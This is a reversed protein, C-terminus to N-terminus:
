AKRARAEYAGQLLALFDRAFRPGDCLPSAAVRERMQSRLAALDGLRGAWAVAREIYTQVDSAVFQGYSANTLHSTAHRSAFGQGPFTVVPVGMWLAECTTLGGSYPQTDLALDVRGYSALVQLNESWGEIIIREGSVGRQAMDQRFRQQVDPHHLGGYKIFLRSLPARRLIEGWADLMWPSYKAPNNFCGFTVYGTALAPLPGVAPSQPPPGYCIYDHPMRLVKESHWAEEGERVHFRDAILGDMAAMGTTGVYGLWTVQLPAPRRAFALLRRGVHGGLDVLVDIEDARVQQALEEDTLGVTVRWLDAAAQFRPTYDDKWLRDSYCAVMCQSKDLCEIARLGLFGTPGSSFDIGSFGLRLPAHADRQTVPPAPPLLPRAYAADWARHAALVEQPSLSNSYHLSVLLKSHTIPNPALEVSRSMAAIAEETKAQAQLAGGLVTWADADKSNEAVLQRCIAEAEGFFLQQLLVLALNFRSDRDHPALRVAERYAAEADPLRDRMREANGLVLWAPVLEPSRSLVSHILQVGTEVDGRQVKVQALPVLAIPNGPNLQLSRVFAEHAADLNGLFHEAAGLGTWLEAEQPKRSLSQRFTEAAEQWRQQDNLCNGLTAWHDAADDFQIANRAALEGEVSRALMRLALALSNWYRGDRPALAIARRLAAEGDVPKGRALSIIGLLAWARHEQPAAAVLQRCASEAADFSGMGALEQIQALAQDTV